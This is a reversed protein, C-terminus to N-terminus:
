LFRKVFSNVTDAVKDWDICEDGDEDIYVYRKLREPEKTKLYRVWVELAEEFDYNDAILAVAVDPSVHRNFPRFFFNNATGDDGEYRFERGNWRVRKRGVPYNGAFWEWSDGRKLREVDEALYWSPM